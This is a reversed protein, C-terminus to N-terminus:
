IYSYPTHPIEKILDADPRHRKYKEKNGITHKKDQTKHGLISDLYKGLLCHYWM